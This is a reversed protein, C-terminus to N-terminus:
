IKKNKIIKLFAEHVADESSHANHLVGFATAYMKQEHKTYLDSILNREDTTEAMSLYFQLM